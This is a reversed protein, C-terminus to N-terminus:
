NRKEVRQKEKELKEIASNTFLTLRGPHAGPALLKANVNKIEVIDVGPINKAAKLLDCDGSVVLLPGKSQKYRRGRTKGIGARINRKGGRELDAALGIKELAALVEKTKVLKEFDNAILFPFKEPLAHGRKAVISSDMTAALASRIAKKREKENIKQAYVKEVKPPFAKRGKVVGSILAATWNFQSGRKTMVKRPVRSIGKGYANKWLRRSHSINGSASHQKGAMYFPAYPQIQKESEYFKQCIDERIRMSFFAPMEIEGHKGTQSIIKAKM